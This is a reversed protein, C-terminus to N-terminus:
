VAKRRPRKRRWLNGWHLGYDAGWKASFDSTVVTGPPNSAREFDIKELMPEVSLFRVRAPIKLLHPIREDSRQQDEVSTGIWVNAPPEGPIAPHSTTAQYGREFVGSTAPTPLWDNLWLATEADRSTLENRAAEIREMWNQPRKTLLLWDMNPTDHILKLLDALWAIPVEDDLWDALSACFVRPRVTHATPHQCSPCFSEELGPPLCHRDHCGDCEVWYPATVNWKLPLLPNTERHFGHDFLKTQSNM